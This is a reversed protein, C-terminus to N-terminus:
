IKTSTYNWILRLSKPTLTIKLYYLQIFFQNWVLITNAQQTRYHFM